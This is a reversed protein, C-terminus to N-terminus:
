DDFRSLLENLESMANGAAGTATSAYSSAEEAYGQASDASSEAEAAADYSEEITAHLEKLEQKTVSITEVDERLSQWEDVLENVVVNIKNLLQLKQEQTIM